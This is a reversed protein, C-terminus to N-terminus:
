KLLDEKHKDIQMLIHGINGNGAFKTSDFFNHNLDLWFLDNENGHIEVLKNLKGVYIELYCNDIPYTFTMLHSLLIESRSISTEEKQEIKGGVFNYLGKYPNKRRKCMLIKDTSDNFVAIANYGQVTFKGRLNYIM